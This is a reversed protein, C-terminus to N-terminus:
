FVYCITISIDDLNAFFRPGQERIEMCTPCDYLTYKFYRGTWAGLGFELNLHPTLMQTYGLSLGLGAGSTEQLAPRWIGTTSAKSYQGKFGVWFGSYVYWPWYRLGGYYTQQKEWIPVGTKAGTLEWPNYRVGADITINRHVSMGLELNATGLNAWQVFNTSVSFQIKESSRRIAEEQAYSIQSASLVTVVAIITYLIKRM